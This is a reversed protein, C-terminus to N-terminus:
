EKLLSFVAKEQLKRDFFMEATKRNNKGIAVLSKKNDLMLSLGKKFSDWTYFVKGLSHKSFFKSIESNKPAKAIIPLSSAAYDFLKVPISTKLNNPWPLVGIDAVSFYNSIKEYDVNTKIITKKEIALKKITKKLNSFNEADNVTTDLALILLLKSKTSLVADCSNSLFEDVEEDGISGSYCLVTENNGIGLKKRVEKRALIDRKLLTTNTGNMVISLKENTLAYNNQAEELDSHTLFMVKDSFSYTFWRLFSYVQWRIKEKAGSKQVAYYQGDEKADLIFKSGLLKSFFLGFANPILPPSTGIVIKPKTNLIIKVMERLSSYRKIEACETINKRKPALFLVEFERKTLVSKLFDVRISCAGKEPECYPTLIIAKNM